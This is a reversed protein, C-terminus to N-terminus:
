RADMTGKAISFERNFVKFDYQLIFQNFSEPPPGIDVSYDLGRWEPDQDEIFNTCVLALSPPAMDWVTEVTEWVSDTRGMDFRLEGGETQFYSVKARRESTPRSRTFPHGHQKQNSRIPKLEIDGFENHFDRTVHPSHQTLIGVDDADNNYQHYPTNLSSSANFILETDDEKNKWRFQRGSLEEDITEIASPSDSRNDM